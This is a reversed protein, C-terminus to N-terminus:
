NNTIILSKHIRRHNFRTCLYLEVTTNELCGLGDQSFPHPKCSSVNEFDSSIFCVIIPIIPINPTILTNLNWSCRTNQGTPFQINKFGYTM